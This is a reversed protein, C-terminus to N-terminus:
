IAIQSTSSMFIYRSMYVQGSLFLVRCTPEKENSTGLYISRTGADFVALAASLSELTMPDDVEQGAPPHRAGKRHRRGQGRAPQGALRGRQLLGHEDDGALCGPDEPGM